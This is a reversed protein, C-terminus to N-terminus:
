IIITSMITRSHISAQNLIWARSDLIFLPPQETALNHGVRHGRSSCCALRRQEESDGPTQEFEHGNLQHHERVM